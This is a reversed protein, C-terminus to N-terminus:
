RGRAREPQEDPAYVLDWMEALERRIAEAPIGIDRLLDGLSRKFRKEFSDLQRTEVLAPLRARESVLLVRAYRTVVPQGFWYGLVTTSAPADELASLCLRKRLREACRLTVM